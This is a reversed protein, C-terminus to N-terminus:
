PAVADSGTSLMSVGWWCNAAWCPIFGDTCPGAAPELTTGARGGSAARPRGHVPTGAGGGESRRAAMRRSEFQLCCLLCLAAPGEAAKAACCGAAAPPPWVFADFGATESSGASCTRRQCFSVSQRGSVGLKVPSGQLPRGTAAFHRHM